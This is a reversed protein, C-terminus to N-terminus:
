GRGLKDWTALDPMGAKIWCRLEDADWRLLQKGLADIPRPLKGAARLRWITPVSVRLLQALDRASLLLPVLATPAETVTPNEPTM